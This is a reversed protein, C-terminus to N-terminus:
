EAYCRYQEDWEGREFEIPYMEPDKGSEINWRKAFRQIRATEEEVWKWVTIQEDDM